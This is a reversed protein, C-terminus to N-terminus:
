HQANDDPVAEDNQAAPRLAHGEAHELGRQALGGLAAIFGPNVGVHMAGEIEGLSLAADVMQQPTLVGGSQAARVARDLDDERELAIQELVSALAFNSDGDREPNQCQRLREAVRRLFLSLDRADRAM